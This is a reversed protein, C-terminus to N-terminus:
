IKRAPPPLGYADVTTALGILIDVGCIIKKQVIYYCIVM